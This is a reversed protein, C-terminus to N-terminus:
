KLSWSILSCPFIEPYHVRDELEEFYDAQESLSGTLFNKANSNTM